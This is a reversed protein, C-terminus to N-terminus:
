QNINHKHCHFQSEFLIRIGDTDMEALQIVKQIAKGKRKM